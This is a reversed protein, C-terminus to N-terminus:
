RHANQLRSGPQETVSGNSRYKRMYLKRRLRLADTRRGREYKHYKERRAVRREEPTMKAYVRRKYLRSAESKTAYKRRRSIMEAQNCAKHSFAINDLDFFAAQPDPASQWAVKHEVSFTERTLEGGCRHCVHGLLLALKM